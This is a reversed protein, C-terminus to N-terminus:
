MTWLYAVRPSRFAEIQKEVNGSDMRSELSMLFERFSNAKVSSIVKINKIGTLEEAIKLAEPEGGLADVLGISFAKRGTFIRGDAYVKLETPNINPRGDKVAEFFQNYSDDIMEQLLTHEEETMPRYPSGMDKHKGSKISSFKVGIKDMLGEFNSTQFIVGISGTMTGPQAVIKDCAMAIYYAGSAAVDRFVAIVKVNKEQRAYLIANYIDQVAGVTGGPSNLDLIIAKVDKRDAMERIRAAISSASAPTNWGSSQTETIVGKIKIVAVGPEGTSAAGAFTSFAPPRTVTEFSTQKKSAGSFIIYLGSLSSIAFLAILVTMWNTSRPQKKPKEQPQQEQPTAPAANDANQQAANQAQNEGPEPTNLIEQGENNTETGM